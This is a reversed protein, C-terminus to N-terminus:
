QKRVKLVGTRVWCIIDNRGRRGSLLASLVRSLNAKKGKRLKDIYAAFRM